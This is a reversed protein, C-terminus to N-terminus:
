KVEGQRISDYYQYFLSSVNTIPIFDHEGTSDVKVLIEIEGADLESLLVNILRLKQNDNMQHANKIDTLPM